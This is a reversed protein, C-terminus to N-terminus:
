RPLNRLGYIKSSWPSYTRSVKRITLVNSEDDHLQTSLYLALGIAAIVDGPIRLDKNEEGKALKGQRKLKDKIRMNLVKSLLEFFWYLLLLAVFVILYGVISVVISEIITTEPVVNFETLTLM